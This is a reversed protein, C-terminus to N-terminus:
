RMKQTDAIIMDIKIQNPFLTILIVNTHQSGTALLDDGHRMRDGVIYVHSQRIRSQGQEQTLNFSLAIIQSMKNKM